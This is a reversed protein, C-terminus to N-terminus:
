KGGGIQNKLFSVAYERAMYTKGTGPPGYLIIQSKQALLSLIHKNEKDILSESSKMRAPPYNEYLYNSYEPPTMGKTLDNLNKSNLLLDKKEDVTLTKIKGDLLGLKELFHRIENESFINIFKGPFYLSLIKGKFTPALDIGFIEQIIKKKNLREQDFISGLKILEIIQNKVYNFVKKANKENICTYIKQKNPKKLEQYKIRLKEAIKKTTIYSKLEPSYYITFKIAPSGGIVGLDKTKHEVWTCFTDKSDKGQVYNELTLIKDLKDEPFKKRFERRLNEFKGMNKIM